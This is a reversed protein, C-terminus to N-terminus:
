EGFLWPLSLLVLCCISLHYLHIGIQLVAQALFLTSCEEQTNIEAENVASPIAKM